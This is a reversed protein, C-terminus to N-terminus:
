PHSWENPNKRVDSSIQQAIMNDGYVGGRLIRRIFEEEATAVVGNIAFLRAAVGYM